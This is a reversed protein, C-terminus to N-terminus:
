FMRGPSFINNPDLTEKLMRMLRWANTPHGWVPLQPKLSAPAKEVTLNGGKQVAWQLLSRIEEVLPAEFQQTLMVRVMGNLSHAILRTTEGFVEQVLKAFECVESSPLMAKLVIIANEGLHADRVKARLTIEEEGRFTSGVILGCSDALRKTEKLWWDVEEKFGDFGHLLCYPGQPSLLEEVGSAKLMGANLLESLAPTVYSRVLESLFNEFAELKEGWLPVIAKSEPLPRVKFAAEVIIGLTGFSGVYIKTLDYGAVNKVVKGGFHTLTGDAQAVKIGLLNERVAGYLCRSPGTMATAITGGITARDPFPPDLPLFQGREFLVQQLEEITTGSRVIVVLDDHSYEVVGKMSSLSLAVDYRTPPMGIHRKTGNGLPILSLNDVQAKRVAETLQEETEIAWVEKPTMEDVTFMEPTPAVAASM